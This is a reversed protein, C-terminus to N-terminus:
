GETWRGQAERGTDFFQDLYEDSDLESERVLCFVPSGSSPPTLLWYAQAMGTYEAGGAEEHAAAETEALAIAEDIGEAQWLTVREEYAYGDGAPSQFVCRVGFWKPDPPEDTV